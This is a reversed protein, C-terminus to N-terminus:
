NLEVTERFKNVPGIRSSDGNFYYVLFCDKIDFYLHNDDDYYYASPLVWSQEFNFEQNNLHYQRIESEINSNRMNGQDLIFLKDSCEHLSINGLLILSDLKEGSNNELFLWGSRRVMKITKPTSCHVLLLVTSVFIIKITNM